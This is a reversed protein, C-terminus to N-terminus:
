VGHANIVTKVIVGRRMFERIADTVDLIIEGSGISGVCWWCMGQGFFISCDGGKRDTVYGLASAPCAM